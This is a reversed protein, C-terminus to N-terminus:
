EYMSASRGLAPKLCLGHLGLEIRELLLYVRMEHEVVEAYQRLQYHFVASQRHIEKSLERLNVAVLWCLFPEFVPAPACETEFVYAVVLFYDMGEVVGGPQHVLYVPQPLRTFLSAHIYAGHWGLAYNGTM